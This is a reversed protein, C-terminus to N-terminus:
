IWWDAELFIIINRLGKSNEPNSKTVGLKHIPRSINPHTTTLSTTNNHYDGSTYDVDDEDDATTTNDRTMNDPENHGTEPEATTMTINSSATPSEQTFVSAPLSTFFMGYDFMLLFVPFFCVICCTPANYM